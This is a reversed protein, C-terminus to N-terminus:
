RIFSKKSYLHFDFSQDRFFSKCFAITAGDLSYYNRELSMIISTDPIGMIDALDPPCVIAKIIVTKKISHLNHYKKLLNNIPMEIISPDIGDDTDLTLLYDCFCIVKKESYYIKNYAVKYLGSAPDHTCSFDGGRMSDALLSVNSEGDFVLKYQTSKSKKVYNGVRPINVIYGENSLTQLCRSVTTKSLGYSEMLMNESPLKDGPLLKGSSIKKIIDGTLSSYLRTNLENVM